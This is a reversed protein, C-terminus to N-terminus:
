ARRWRSCRGRSKWSELTTAGNFSKRATVLLHGAPTEEVVGTDHGWQLEPQRSLITAVTRTKWSELTTAGNFSKWRRIKRSRSRTKWSELTTAGNFRERDAAKRKNQTTKWSELTTAGNFRLQAGLVLGRAHADEVVGTDHGWQLKTHFRRSKRSWSDEVVGTDHGWQLSRLAVPEAATNGDEM